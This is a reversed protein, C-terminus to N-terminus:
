IFKQILKNINNPSSTKFTIKRTKNLFFKKFKNYEEKSLRKGLICYSDIQHNGNYQIIAPGFINHVKGFMEFFVKYLRGNSDYLKVSPYPNDRHFIGDKYWMEKKVKGNEFYEIWAPGIDNHIHDNIYYIKGRIKGNPFYYILGPIRNGQLDYEIYKNEKYFREEGVKNDPYFRVIAPLIKKEYPDRHIWKQNIKSEYYTLVKGKYFEDFTEIIM